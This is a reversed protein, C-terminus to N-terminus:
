ALPRSGHARLHPKGIHGSERDLWGIAIWVLLALAYHGGTFWQLFTVTLLALAALSLADGRARALRYARSFVLAVLALYVLLGPAGLAVALNSPDAETSVGEGGLRAALSVAGAGVGVPNEFASRIGDVVLDLHLLLTSSQPDLPRSLGEVQHALLDGAPGEASVSDGVRGVIAPVVIAAVIAAVIVAAALPVRRRSLVMFVLAAAASFIAARASAVLLATGILPLAGLYLFRRGATGLAVCATLAVALFSAYEAASPFPGFPRVADGVVLGAYGREEIWLLDWSPFSHFSQYLGYAAVPVGLVAILGLLRAFGVNDCLARGVWFGLTPVLMFLLGALGVVLGGQAPNLASALILAEIVLVTAALGSLRSLGRRLAAVFLAGTGAAGVLLLPDEGEFPAVLSVSRRVLGIAVLWVVLLLVAKRPATLGLVLSCLGALLAIPARVHESAALGGLAFTTFVVTCAALSGALLRGIEPSHTRHALTTM